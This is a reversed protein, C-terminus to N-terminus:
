ILISRSSMDIGFDIKKFLLPQNPYGYDVDSRIFIHEFISSIRLLPNFFRSHAGLIPPNLPPPDPFQFKVVYDKPRKALEAQRYMDEDDNSQQAGKGGKKTTKTKVVQELQM